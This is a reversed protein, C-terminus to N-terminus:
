NLFTNILKLVNNETVENEDKELYFECIDIALAKEKVISVFEILEDITLGCWERYYTGPAFDPDLVDIDLSLYIEGSLNELIEIVREKDKLVETIAMYNIGKEELYEFETRSFTRLGFMYVNKAEVQEEEILCRVYDEHSPVGTDVEVDPHADFIVLKVNEKDKSFAKFLSYTNSHDGTISIVKNKQNDLFTNEIIKNTEEINNKIIEVREKNEFDILNFIKNVSNDDYDQIYLHGNWNPIFLLKKEM